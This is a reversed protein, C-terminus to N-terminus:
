GGAIKLLEEVSAREIPKPIPYEFHRRLFSIAESKIGDMRTRDGPQSVDFEQAAILEAIEDDDAFNMRHWDIVSDGRLILRVSELDALTFEELTKLREEPM